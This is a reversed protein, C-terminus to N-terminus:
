SNRRAVNQLQFAIRFCDDRAEKAIQDIRVLTPAVGLALLEHSLEEFREVCDVVLFLLKDYHEERKINGAIGYM